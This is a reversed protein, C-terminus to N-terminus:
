PQFPLMRVHMYTLRRLGLAACAAAARQELGGRAPQRAVAVAVEDELLDRTVGAVRAAGEIVLELVLLVERARDELPDVLRPALLDALDDVRLGVRDRREERKGPAVRDEAPAVDGADRDRQPELEAALVVREAALDLPHGLREDAAARAQDLRAARV